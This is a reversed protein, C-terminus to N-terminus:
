QSNGQKLLKWLKQSCLDKLLVERYSYKNSFPTPEWDSLCPGPNYGKDYILNRGTRQAELLWRRVLEDEGKNVVLEWLWIARRTSPACIFAQCVLPRFQYINCLKKEKHLFICKNDKGRRLMIDVVPGDIVTYGIKKLLAQIDFHREKINFHRKLNIVDIWTLPAREACCLDCGACDKRGSRARTLPLTEIAKNLANLYDQVSAYEDNIKVDYGNERGFKVVTIQVKQQIGM